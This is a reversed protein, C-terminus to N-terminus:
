AGTSGRGFLISSPGKLVQIDELYFPDRYYSGFDRMGDLYIDSRASFGRLTLNDGQSANEGAGLSIGSVNRLADRLTNVGQDDMLQRPVTDISQPTDLMPQTLKNLTPQTSQYSGSTNASDVSVTPTQVPGGSDTQAAALGAWGTLLAAVSSSTLLCRQWSM